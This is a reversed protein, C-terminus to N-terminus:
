QGPKRWHEHIWIEFPPPVEGRDALYRAFRDYEGRLQLERKSLLVYAFLAASLSALLILVYDM